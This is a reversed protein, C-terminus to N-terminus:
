ATAAPFISLHLEQLRCLDGDSGRVREAGPSARDGAHPVAGTLGPEPLQYTTPKKMQASLSDAIQSLILENSLAAYRGEHIGTYLEDCDIIGMGVLQRNVDQRCNGFM